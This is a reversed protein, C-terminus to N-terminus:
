ERRPGQLLVWKWGIETEIRLVRAFHELMKEFLVREDEWSVSEFAGGDDVVQSLEYLAYGGPKLARAHDGFFRDFDFVHDLSNSYVLDATGDAQPLEHFDGPRVFPNDPGPNLDIGYANRFGLDRLVEVETGQRAGACVIVADAPLVPVLHRFRRYYKQRWAAITENSFGGRVKLMEDLKQRQHLVYEDYSGYARRRLGDGSPQERWGSGGSHRRRVPHMDRQHVYGRDRERRLRRM